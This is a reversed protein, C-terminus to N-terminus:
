LRLLEALTGFSDDWSWHRRAFDRGARGMAAAREPDVLLDVLRGAVESVDGGDVLHGTRGDELTDPAGGSRGVLVPLGSAAAELFVIGLGEPHLGLRRTRCPMAFVDAAAYYPAVAGHPVSGALVVADEVGRAAAIARLHAEEPGGGVVLLTAEPVRERVLPLAQVLARQNKIRVLRSVCLVVPREGLGHRDRVVRGEPSPRFVTTDVGPRLRRAAAAARASLVPVIRRRTYDGLYTVVDVGDGVRRLASRAGPLSAWWVEHGHTSAVLRRIGAARLPGALLGLPAAAGFWVRDCGHSSAVEAAHRAVARTPLLTRAPSRVVPFPLARDFEAAGEARSTLVVVSGGPFRRVVEYVFTEIGGRRPPFDNTVVLTRGM